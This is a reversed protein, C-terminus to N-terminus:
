ILVGAFFLVAMCPFVVLSALAFLALEVSSLLSWLFVMPLLLADARFLAQYGGLAIPVGWLLLACQAAALQRNDLQGLGRRAIRAGLTVMMATVVLAQVGVMMGLDHPGTAIRAIRRVYADALPYDGYRYNQQVQFYLDYHGSQLGMVGMVALVGVAGTLAFWQAPHRLLHTQSPGTRLMEVVWCALVALWGTSYAACLLPSIVAARAWARAGVAAILELMLWATLAIPFVADYYIAGPFVAVLLVGLAARTATYRHLVRVWASWLLGLHAVRSLVVGALAPPVGMSGLAAILWPYLPFWAGSGCVNGEIGHGDPCPTARYGARAIELYHGSDWRVFSWPDAVSLDLSTAAAWVWLSHFLFAALPLAAALLAPHARALRARPPGGDPAPQTAETGPTM